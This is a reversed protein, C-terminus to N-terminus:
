DDDIRRALDQLVAAHAEDKPAISRFGVEGSSLSSLAAECMEAMERDREAEAQHEAINLPRPM